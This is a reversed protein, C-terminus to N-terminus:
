WTYISIDTFSCRTGFDLNTGSLVALGAADGMVPMDGRQWMKQGNIYVSLEKGDVIVSLEAEGEVSPNQWPIRVYSLYSYSRSGSIHLNGDMRVSVMLHDGSDSAANFFVGCGSTMTDPTQFGSEWSIKSSFVFREAEWLQVASLYGMNAYSDAYDGLFLFRGNEQPISNELKLQEILDHFSEEKGDEGRAGSIDMIGLTMLVCLSLFLQLIASQRRRNM